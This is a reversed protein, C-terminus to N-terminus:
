FLAVIFDTSGAPDQYDLFLDTSAAQLDFELWGTTSEGPDLAV